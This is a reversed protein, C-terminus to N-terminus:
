PRTAEFANLCPLPLMDVPPTDTPPVTSTGNRELLYGSAGIFNVEAFGHAGLNAHVRTVVGHKLMYMGANVIVTTGPKM